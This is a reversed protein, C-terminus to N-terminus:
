ANEIFFLAQGFEVAAGAEALVKSLRGACPAKVATFKGKTTEVVGLLGGEAVAAGEEAPRARGPESWQFIGVAPSTVASFRSAPPAPYAAPAEATSLAFGDDGHNYGVEVLDTTRIWALVKTLEETKM